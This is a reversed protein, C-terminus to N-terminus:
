EIVSTAKQQSSAQTTIGHVLLNSNSGGTTEEGGFEMFFNGFKSIQMIDNHLKFEYHLIYLVHRKEFM